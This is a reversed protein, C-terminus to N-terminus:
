VAGDGFQTAEEFVELEIGLVFAFVTEDLLGDFVNGEDRWLAWLVKISGEKPAVGLGFNDIFHLATEAVNSCDHIADRTFATPEPALDLRHADACGQLNEKGALVPVLPLVQLESPAFNYGKEVSKPAERFAYGCDFGEPFLVPCSM